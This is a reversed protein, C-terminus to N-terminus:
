ATHIKKIATSLQSVYDKVANKDFIINKTEKTIFLYGSKTQIAFIMDTFYYVHLKDDEIYEIRDEYLYYEREIYAKRSKLPTIFLYLLFGIAFFIAFGIILYFYTDRKTLNLQYKIIFAYLPFIIAHFLFFSLDKFNKVINMTFFLGYEKSTGTFKILPDTCSKTEKNEKNYRHNNKILVILACILVVIFVGLAIYVALLSKSDCDLKDNEYSAGKFLFIVTSLLIIYFIASIWFCLWKTILKKM